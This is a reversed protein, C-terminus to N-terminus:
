DYIERVKITLRYGYRYNNVVIGNPYLKGNKRVHEFYSVRWQLEDDIRYLKRILAGEAGAYVYEMIGDDVYSMVVLSDRDWRSWLRGSPILDLYIRKIDEGVTDALRGGRDLPPLAFMSTVVGNGDVAFEFLKIGVPSLCVVSFARSKGDISLYGIGSLKQGASKFSIVSLMDAHDPISRAFREQVVSADKTGMPVLEVEKFPMSECGGAVILFLSLLLLRRM